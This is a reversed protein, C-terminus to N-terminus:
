IMVENGDHIDVIAKVMIGWKQGMPAICTEANPPYAHNILRLINGHNGSYLQCVVGTGPMNPCSIDYARPGKYSGPPLIEGTMRGLVEGASYAIGGATPAVAVLTLGRLPHRGIRLRAGDRVDPCVCDRELCYGCRVADQPSSDTPAPPHLSADEHYVDTTRVPSIATMVGEYRALTAPELGQDEWMFEVDVAGSSLSDIFALGSACLTRTHEGAGEVLTRLLRIDYPDLKLYCRPGVGMANNRDLPIFPLLGELGACLRMWKYGNTRHASFSSKSWGCERYAIEEAEAIWLPDARLRGAKHRDIERVLRLEGLRVMFRCLNGRRMASNILRIHGMIRSTADEGTQALPREIDLDRRVNVLSAFQRVATRGLLAAALKYVRPRVRTHPPCRPVELVDGTRRIEGMVRAISRAHERKYSLPIRREQEGRPPQSADSEPDPEPGTNYNPDAHISHEGGLITTPAITENDGASDVSGQSAKSDPELIPELTTQPAPPPSPEALTEADGDISPVYRLPTATTSHSSRGTPLPTRGKYFPWQALEANRVERLGAMITRIEELAIRWSEEPSSSSPLHNCDSHSDAKCFEEERLRRHLSLACQYLERIRAPIPDM